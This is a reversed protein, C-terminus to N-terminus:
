KRVAGALIAEFEAREVGTAYIMATADPDTFTLHVVLVRQPRGMFISTELIETQQGAVRAPWKAAVQM